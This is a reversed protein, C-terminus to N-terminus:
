MLEYDARDVRKTRARYRFTFDPWISVNRGQANLYWSRCGSAWVTTTLKQTLWDQFRAQAAPTVDLAARGERDLLRLADMVFAIQSEIMFVMSNHGLGTNPGMLLFYNPFGAVTIGLHSPMTGDAWAEALTRGGRGTVSVAGHPDMALFGTGHILVDAPRERGDATVVGTPTIRTIADTILAANPQQLAPYYDNAILVRKCGVTYDPTLKARLVPDPAQAALHDRAMTEAIKMLKPDLFGLALRENRAYIAGRYLWQALPLMRYLTQETEGITRDLKPLIWPPTRQYVDVQGATKVIQPVFQIASAGTGIVAVRKATLDVDHRWQASHFAIGGFTDLGAIEPVHPVHLGGMGAVVARARVPPQGAFAVTWLRAAEDWTLATVRHGFRIHPRLGFDTAVTELYARIEPQPAYMRSWGPFPAFSFSYLHSPVDCACGPYTNERWTGGVADAKEFIAFRRGGAKLLHVGMGLGSFGTGIVAVDLPPQDDATAPM